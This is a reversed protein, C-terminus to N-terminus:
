VVYTTASIPDSIFFSCCYNVSKTDTVNLKVPPRGRVKSIQFWLIQLGLFQNAYWSQELYDGQATINWLCWSLSYSSVAPPWFLPISVWVPFTVPTLIGVWCQQWVTKQLSSLGSLLLSNGDVSTLFLWIKAVRCPEVKDTTGTNHKYKAWM